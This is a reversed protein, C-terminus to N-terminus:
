GQPLAHHAPYWPALGALLRATSNVRWQAGLEFDSKLLASAASTSAACALAMAAGLWAAAVLRGRGPIM